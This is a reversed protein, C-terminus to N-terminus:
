KCEIKTMLLKKAGMLLFKHIHWQVRSVGCGFKTEGNLKAKCSFKLQQNM